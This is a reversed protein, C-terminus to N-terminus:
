LNSEQTPFIEQLLAHYGVGINKGSSNWSCLLRAPQLGYPPMCNSVVEAFAIAGWELIRAQLIGHVSSGPLSCDRPGCLTLCLQLSMASVCLCRFPFSIWFLPSM